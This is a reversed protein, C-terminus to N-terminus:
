DYFRLGDFKIGEDIKMSVYAIKRVSNIHITKLTDSASSDSAYLPSEVGNSFVLQIASLDFRNLFNKYNIAKLRFEGAQYLENFQDFNPYTILTPFRIEGAISPQGIEGLLLTFHRM